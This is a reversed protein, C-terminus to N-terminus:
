LIFYSDGANVFSYSVGSLMTITKVNNISNNPYFDLEDGESIINIASPSNNKIIFTHGDAILFYPAPLTITCLSKTVIVIYDDITLTTNKNVIRITNVHGGNVHLAADPASTRIGIKDKNVRGLVISDNQSVKAESGIACAYSLNHASECGSGILVNNTGCNDKTDHGFLVCNTSYNKTASSDFITGGRHNCGIAINEASSSNNISQNITERFLQNNTKTSPITSAILSSSTMPMAIEELHIGSLIKLDDYSGVFKDMRLKKLNFYKEFGELTISNDDNIWIIHSNNFLKLKYMEPVYQNIIYGVQNFVSKM